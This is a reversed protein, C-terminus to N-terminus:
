RGNSATPTAATASPRWCSRYPRSWRRAARAATGHLAPRFRHRRQDAPEDDRRERAIVMQVSRMIASTRARELQDHFDPNEFTALEVRTSIGIIQRLAHQAVLEALLRQRQEALATAAGVVVMTGILIAFGPIITSAPATASGNEFVKKLVVDAALLQVTMVVGVLGQLGLSMTVERRSAKWAVGM